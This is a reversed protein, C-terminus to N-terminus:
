LLRLRFNNKTDDDEVVEVTRVVVTQQDVIAARVAAQVPLFFLDMSIDPYSPDWAEGVGTRLSSSGSSSINSDPTLSAATPRSPLNKNYQIVVVLVEVEVDVTPAMSHVGLPKVILPQPVPQYGGLGLM